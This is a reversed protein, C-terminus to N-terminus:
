HGVLSSMIGLLAAIVALILKLQRLRTRFM